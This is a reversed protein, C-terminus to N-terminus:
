IIFNIKKNVRPEGATSGTVWCGLLDDPETDPDPKFVNTEPSFTKKKHSFANKPKPLFVRKEPKPPFTCIQIKASFRTKPKSLFVCKQTKAPYCM